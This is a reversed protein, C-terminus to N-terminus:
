AADTSMLLPPDDDLLPRIDYRAQEPLVQASAALPPLADWLSWAGALASLSWWPISPADRAASNWHKIRNSLPNSTNPVVGFGEGSVAVSDYSPCVARRGEEPTVDAARRVLSAKPQQAVESWESVGETHLYQRADHLQLHHDHHARVHQARGQLSTSLPASTSSRTLTSSRTPSLSSSNTLLDQSQALTSNSSSTSASPTAVPTPAESPPTPAIASILSHLDPDSPCCASSEQAWDSGLAAPDNSGAWRSCSVLRYSVNWVGYDHDGPFFDRAIGKSPWALDWHVYAGLRNPKDSTAGCWDTGPCKDTVKVVVSPGDSGLDLGDGEPPLPALPTNLLQLEACLGCAPGFSGNSGYVLSNIAATPHRTSRGVCGCSAIYDDPLDYHTLTAWGFVLDDPFQWATVQTPLLLLPSSTLLASCVINALRGLRSPSM